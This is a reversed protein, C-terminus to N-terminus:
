EQSRISGLPLQNTECTVALHHIPHRVGAITILGGSRRSEELIGQLIGDRQEICYEPQYPQPPNNMYTILMGQLWFHLWM